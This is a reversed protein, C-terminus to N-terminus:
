GVWAAYLDECLEEIELPIFEGEPASCKFSMPKSGDGFFGHLGRTEQDFSYDQFSVVPEGYPSYTARRLSVLSEYNYHPASLMQHVRKLLEAVEKSGDFFDMSFERYIRESNRGALGNHILIFRDRVKKKWHQKGQGELEMSEYRRALEENPYTATGWAGTDIWKCLNEYNTFSNFYAFHISARGIGLFLVSACAVGLLTKM